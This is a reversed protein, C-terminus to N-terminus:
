APWWARVRDVARAVGRRAASRAVGGAQAPAAGRRTPGVDRLLRALALGLRHDGTHDRTGRDAGRDRAGAAEHARRVDARARSLAGGLTDRRNRTARDRAQHVRRPGAAYGVWSDHREIAKKLDREADGGPGELSLAEGLATDAAALEGRTRQIRAVRVLAAGKQKPGEALDVLRQTTKVADAENGSRLQIDALRLLAGAHKPNHRLVAEVCKSAREINNLHEDFIAALRLHADARAADDSSLTLLQDLTAVADGWQRNREYVEALRTLALVHGPTAELARKFATIGAGINDLRRTYLGGVELWLATKRESSKASVATKALIDVLRLVQGTELLPQIVREAGQTDDPWVELAREFDEVAGLDNM